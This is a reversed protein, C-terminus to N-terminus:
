SQSQSVSEVRGIFRRPAPMLEAYFGHLQTHFREISFRPCTVRRAEEAVQELLGRNRSLEVLKKALEETAGREVLWGNEEDKVIEPIGGVRTALVATGSSMAEVLVLGFPEERSNLVLLDAAQLLESVDPLHGTFHVRDAIQPASAAIKLMNFYSREHEFAVSGAIVLHMHPRDACAKQFAALLEILGKRECIQGVACVLFADEAVRLRQRMTSSGASKHPFHSLDVGNHITSVRGQFSFPGRFARAACDSVAVISTQRLVLASVRILASLPHRPLIDHIHWVVKRGTGVSAASVVIGARLTNAHVIDPEIKALTKRLSLMARLLSKFAKLLQGPRWDFRAQVTPLPACHVGEALLMGRLDGEVPCIATVEFRARDLGRVMNILVREAGSVAGTHNVYVVRTPSGTIM